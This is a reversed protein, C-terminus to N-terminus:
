LQEQLPLQKIKKFILYSKRTKQSQSPQPHSSLTYDLSCGGDDRERQTNRSLIEQKAVVVKNLIM